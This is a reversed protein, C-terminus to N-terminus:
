IQTVLWVLAHLVLAAAIGALVDDLMIGMGGHVKQDIYRIPWPKLIDFFRFLLFGVIIWQWGSPAATMAILYGVIEDWVVSPPDDRGLERAAVDCIWVGVAFLLLTALVYGWLPLNVLLLFFLIGPLTGVTGPAKPVRGTGFGEAIFLIIKRM